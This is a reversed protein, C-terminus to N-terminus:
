DYNRIDVIVLGDRRVYIYRLDCSDEWMYHAFAEQAAKFASPGDTHVTGFKAERGDSGIAITRDDLRADVTYSAM